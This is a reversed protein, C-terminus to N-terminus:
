IIRAWKRFSQCIKLLRISNSSPSNQTIQDVFGKSPGQDGAEMLSDVITVSAQFTYLGSNSLLVWGTLRATTTGQLRGHFDRTQLGAPHLLSVVRMLCPKSMTYIPIIGFRHLHTNVHPHAHTHTSILHSPPHFLCM